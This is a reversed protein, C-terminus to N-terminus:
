SLRTKNKRKYIARNNDNSNYTTTSTTATAAAAAATAIATNTATNDRLVCDKSTNKKHM